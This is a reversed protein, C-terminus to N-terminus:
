GPGWELGGSYRTILPHGCSPPSGVRNLVSGLHKWLRDSKQNVKVERINEKKIEWNFNLFLRSHGAGEGWCLIEKAKREDIPTNREHDRSLSHYSNELDLRENRKYCFYKSPLHRQWSGHYKQIKVFRFDEGGHGGSFEEDYGYFRFFRARSMFFVNPHGNCIVGSKNSRVKYFTNRPNRARRMYDLTQEPFELDIDTLLVKDSRAYTVGLNRAGGQNWPIDDLINLWLINLNFDPIEFELKSCDNVVVFQVEDLLDSSYSEYKRFLEVVTDPNKQDLYFHTIYTLKIHQRDFSSRESKVLDCFSKDIM